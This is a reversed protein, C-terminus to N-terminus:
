IVAIDEDDPIVSLSPAKAANGNLLKKPPVTFDNRRIADVSRVSDVYLRTRIEGNNARYEEEALVLGVDKYRLKSEDKDWKYGENSHEVAGIFKKFFPLATDKYSQINSLGWFGKNEYLQGYYGAFEGDAIEYELRLYRKDSINEVAMIKCIYGGTTVRKFDQAEQITDLDPINIM